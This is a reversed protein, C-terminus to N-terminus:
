LGFSRYDYLALQPSRPQAIFAAAQPMASQDADYPGATMQKLDLRGISM